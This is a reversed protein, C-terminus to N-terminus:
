EVKHPCVLWNKACSIYHTIVMIQDGHVMDTPRGSQRHIHWALASSDVEAFLFQIVSHGVDHLHRTSM